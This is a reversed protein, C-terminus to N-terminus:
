RERVWVTGAEVGVTGEVGAAYCAIKILAIKSNNCCLSFPVSIHINETLVFTRFRDIASWGLLAERPLCM